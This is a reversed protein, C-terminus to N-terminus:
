LDRPCTWKNAPLLTKNQVLLYETVLYSLEGHPILGIDLLTDIRPILIYPLSSPLYIQLRRVAVIHPSPRVHRANYVRLLWVKM